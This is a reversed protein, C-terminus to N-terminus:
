FFDVEDDQDASAELAGSEVLEAYSCVQNRGHEKAYYVAKDARDFAGGPTDNLDLPTFGISITIHEVQPFDYEAIQQRFRNLTAQAQDHDACRMLVVFEEGGFRYLQDDFRFSSRMKRALLLLVEDGILHGFNDNVRKFHDIDIVALWYAAQGSQARREPQDSPILPPQAQAARWFASDFTKRNLLETLADKEGFDLLSQLNEYLLLISDIAEKGFADIAQATEVELVSCVSAQTNIPFVCLFSGPGLETQQISETVIAAERVPHTRLAPLAGIDLWIQDRQPQTQQKSVHALTLWHQDNLPGVACLLKASYFDGLDSDMILKVLGFNMDRRDRFGSLKALGALLKKM